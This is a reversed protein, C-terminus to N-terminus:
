RKKKEILNQFKILQRCKSFFGTGSPIINGTIVNEKIGNLYDIRSFISAESLVKTTEQFSAASIFSESRLSVKSIGLIINEFKYPIKNNIICFENKKIVKIREVIEKNFFIKNFKSKIKVFSLMKKIIIEIHKNNIEISQNSFIKQIKSLIFNSVFNKGKVNVIDSLNTGKEFIEDGKLIVSNLKLFCNKKSKILLCKKSFTNVIKIYNKNNYTKISKIVGTISSLDVKKGRSELINEIKTLSETIDKNFVKSRKNFIVRDGISYKKKFLLIDDKNLFEGNISYINLVKNIKLLKLKNFKFKTFKFNKRLNKYKLKFVNTTIYKTNLFDKKFILQNKKVFFGDHIYILYGYELDFKEIIESLSNLIFINSKKSLVIFKDLTKVFKLNSSYRLLGSNKSFFELNSFKENIIGGEHFTRMTLQTGPEGISQASIIGVSEGVSVLKRSSLDIGYCKVCVGRELCCFIPSRIEISSIKSKKILSLDKEKLFKSSKLILKGNIYLDRILFRGYINKLLFKNRFLVLGRVCKCDNRSIIIEHAVDVLRRTLYGSDATKLSTDALGKRSGHTSIFYQDSDLGESFNSFMPLYFIKGDPNYVFGKISSIQNLQSIKGKAGSIFLYSVSNSRKKCEKYCFDNLLNCLNILSLNLTKDRFDFKSLVKELIKKKKVLSFNTISISFGYNTLYDLGVKLMTNLIFLTKKKGFLSYIKIILNLINKKKLSFNFYKFYCLDLKFKKFLYVRGFTTIFTKKKILFFIRNNTLIYNNKLICCVIDLNDFIRNPLISNKKTLLYLGLIIDQNPFISPKGNSPLFINRTSLLLKESEINAEKSIPLHVAMQDGDFDANYAFCVYPNIKLANDNTLKIKFSQISLRHLTPARNLIVTFNALEDKLIKFVLNTKNDFEEVASLLTLSYKKKILKRLIFPKMLELLLIRPVCCYSLKITPDVVIVTRGSYDVRKGLLNQRFRGYKGKLNDLISKLNKSIKKFGKNINSGTYLLAEVSQQLLIKEKLLLSKPYFIKLLNKIRNNRNIIRRYLENIDASAFNNDKLEVIPRLNTSIVPLNKIVISKPDLKNKIMSELLRYRYINDKLKIDRITKKLEKKLNISKLLKYVADGGTLVNFGKHSYYKKYIEYKIISNKKFELFRNTLIYYKCYILNEIEKTSFGLILSLKSPLVKFYIPNVVPYCLKIHGMRNKKEFFDMVKVKCVECVKNLFISSKYKGCYCEYDILNGFIRPCFLGKLEPKLTRYNVTESNKVEGFSWSLIEKSTALRIKLSRIEKM